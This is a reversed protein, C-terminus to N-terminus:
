SFQKVLKELFDYDKMKGSLPIAVIIDFIDADKKIINANLERAREIIYGLRELFIKRKIIKDFNNIVKNIIEENIEKEYIKSFSLWNEQLTEIEKLIHQNKINRKLYNIQMLIRMNLVEFEESKLNDLLKETILSITYSHGGLSIAFLDSILIRLLNEPIDKLEFKEINREYFIEGLPNLVLILKWPKFYYNLPIGLIIVNKDLFIKDIFFKSSLTVFIKLDFDLLSNLSNIYKLIFIFYNKFDLDKFVLNNYILYNSVDIFIKYRIQIIKIIDLIDLYIKKVDYINSINHLSNILDIIEKIIKNNYNIEEIICNRLSEAVVNGKGINAIRQQIYKHFDKLEAIQLMLLNFM